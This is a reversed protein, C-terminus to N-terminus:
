TEYRFSTCFLTSHLNYNFFLFNFYSLNFFKFYKSIFRVTINNLLLFPYVISKDNFFSSYFYLFYTEQGM